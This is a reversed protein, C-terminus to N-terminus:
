QGPAQPTDALVPGNAQRRMFELAKFYKRYRNNGWYGYGSLWVPFLDYFHPPDFESIINNSDYYHMFRPGFIFATLMSIVIWYSEQEGKIPGLEAFNVNRIRYQTTTVNGSTSSSARYFDGFGIDTVYLDERTINGIGGARRIMKIQRGEFEEIIQKAEGSTM